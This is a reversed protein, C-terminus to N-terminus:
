GRVNMCTELSSRLLFIEFMGILGASFLDPDIQRILESDIRINMELIFNQLIVYCAKDLDAKARGEQNLEEVIMLKDFEKLTKKNMLFSILGLTYSM